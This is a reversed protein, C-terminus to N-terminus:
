QAVDDAYRSLVVPLNRERVARAWAELTERAAAEATAEHKPSNMTHEKASLAVTPLSRAARAALGPM